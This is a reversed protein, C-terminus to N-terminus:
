LQRSTASPPPHAGQRGTGMITRKSLLQPGSFPPRKVGPVPALKHEAIELYSNDGITAAYGLWYTMAFVEWAPYTSGLKHNTNGSRPPPYTRGKDFNEELIRWNKNYEMLDGDDQASSFGPYADNFESCGRKLKVSIDQSIKDAVANSVIDCVEQGEKLGRCYIFGKYAGSYGPRNEVMCKRTNDNRLDLEELLMFLKFLEIVNRPEIHVKYCGFCYEPIIQLERFVEFHRNCGGPHIGKLQSPLIGRFVQLSLPFAGYVGPTDLSQYFDRADENSIM